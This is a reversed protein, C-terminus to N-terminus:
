SAPFTSCHEALCILKRGYVHYPTEGDSHGTDIVSKVECEARFECTSRTKQIDLHAVADVQGVLGTDHQEGRPTVVYVSNEHRHFKSM